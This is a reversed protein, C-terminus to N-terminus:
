DSFSCPLWVMVVEPTPGGIAPRSIPSLVGPASIIAVVIWGEAWLICTISSATVAVAVLPIVATRKGGSLNRFSFEHSKFDNLFKCDLTRSFSDCPLWVMAGEPTPGGIAPRPIPSLVSPASIIAEM